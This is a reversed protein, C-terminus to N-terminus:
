SHVSVVLFSQSIEKTPCWNGIIAGSATRLPGRAGNGFVQDLRYNIRGFGKSMKRQHRNHESVMARYLGMFEQRLDGAKTDAKDYAIYYAAGVALIRRYHPPLVLDQTTLGFRAPLYVYPYEVREFSTPYHSLRIMQTTVLAAARPIGGAINSIPYTQELTDADLVPFTWPDASLTPQGAFRLFDDALAYELQFLTYPSATVTEDPWVEDLTVVTKNTVTSVSIIRPCFRSDGIRVRWGTPDLEGGVIGSGVIFQGVIASGETLLTSFTATNQGQTISVTGTTVPERLHLIGQPHKRAWWWDVGPMPRGLEDTLGLPSGLLLGELCDNVYGLVPGGDTGNYFDGDVLSGNTFEGARFLAYELLDTVTSFNAM